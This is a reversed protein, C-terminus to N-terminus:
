TYPPDAEWSVKIQVYKDSFVFTNILWMRWARCMTKVFMIFPACVSVVKPSGKLYRLREVFVTHAYSDCTQCIIRTKNNNRISCTNQKDEHRAKTRACVHHTNLTEPM